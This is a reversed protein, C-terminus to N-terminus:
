IIRRCGETKGCTYPIGRPVYSTTKLPGDATLFQALDHIDKIHESCDGIQSSPANVGHLCAIKGLDVQQYTLIHM